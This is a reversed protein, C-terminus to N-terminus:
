SATSKRMLENVILTLLPVTQAEPTITLGLSRALKSRELSNNILSQNLGSEERFVSVSNDLSMSTLFDLVLLSSVNLFEPKEPHVVSKDEMVKYIEARCDSFYSPIESLSRGLRLKARLGNVVGKRSLAEQIATTLDNEDNIDNIM